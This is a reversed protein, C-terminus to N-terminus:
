RLITVIRSVKGRRGQGLLPPFNKHLFAEFSEYKSVLIAAYIIKKEYLSSYTDLKANGTGEPNQVHAKIRSGPNIDKGWYLPYCNDFLPKPECVRRNKPLQSLVENLSNQDLQVVLGYVSGTSQTIRKSGNSIEIEGFIEEYLELKEAVAQTRLFEMLNM